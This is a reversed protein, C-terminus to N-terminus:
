MSSGRDVSSLPACEASDQQPPAGCLCFSPREGRRGRSGCLAQAVSRQAIRVEGLTKIKEMSEQLMVWLEDQQQMNAMIRQQSEELCKSSKEHELKDNEAAQCLCM